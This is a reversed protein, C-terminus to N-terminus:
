VMNVVKILYLIFEIIALRYLDNPSICKVLEVYKRLTLVVAWKGQYCIFMNWYRGKM